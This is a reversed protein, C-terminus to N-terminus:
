VSARERVCVAGRERCLVVAQFYADHFIVNIGDHLQLVIIIVLEDITKLCLIAGFGTEGKTTTVQLNILLLRELCTINMYIPSLHSTLEYLGCIIYIYVYRNRM